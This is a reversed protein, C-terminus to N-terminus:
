CNRHIEFYAADVGGYLFKGRRSLGVKELVRHSSLNEQYSVACIMELNMSNFGHNIMFAAAETAVGQGWASRKLRYGVEFNKTDAFEFLAVWGLFEPQDHWELVWLGFGDLRCGLSMLRDVKDDSIASGIPLAEGEAGIFRMVEPDSNMKILNDRDPPEVRRLRLRATEFPGNIDAM